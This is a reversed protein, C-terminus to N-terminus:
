DKKQADLIRGLQDSLKMGSRKLTHSIYRMWHKNRPLFLSLDGEWDTWSMVEREIWLPYKTFISRSSFLLDLYLEKKEEPIKSEQTKEWCIKQYEKLSRILVPLGKTKAPTNKLDELFRTHYKKEQPTLDEYRLSSEKQQPDSRMMAIEIDYFKKIFGSITNAQPVYMPLYKRHYPNIGPDFQNGYWKLIKFIREPDIEEHDSFRKLIRGWNKMSPPDKYEIGTKDKFIQCANEWLFIPDSGQSGSTAPIHNIKNEKNKNEKPNKVLCGLPKESPLIRIKKKNNTRDEEQDPAPLDDVLDESVKWDVRMYRRRGDFGTINILKLEILKRLIDSARWEKVQLKLGLAENSIFCDRKYTHTLNDIILLCWAEKISIIGADVLQFIEAKVFNGKFQNIM